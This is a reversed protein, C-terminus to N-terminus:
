DPAIQRISTATDLPDELEAAVEAVLADVAIV